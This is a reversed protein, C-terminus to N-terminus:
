AALDVLGADAAGRTMPMVRRDRVYWWQAHLAEHPLLPEILAMAAELAAGQRAAYAKAARRHLAIMPNDLLGRIHRALAAGDAAEITAAERGAHRRLHQACNEVHPVASSPAFRAARSGANHGGIGPLFSGGMVVVDALRYFLGLEGLTDALYVSV